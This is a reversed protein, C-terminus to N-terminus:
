SPETPATAPGAPAAPVYGWAVDARTDPDTGAGVRVYGRAVLASCRIARPVTKSRGLAALVRVGLSRAGGLAGSVLVLSGEELESPDPLARAAAAVDGADTEGLTVTTATERASLPPLPVHPRASGPATM